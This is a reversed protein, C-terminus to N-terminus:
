IFVIDHVVTAGIQNNLMQIFKSKALALENRLPSSNVQIYLKKDSFYLQTTRNAIAQGVLQEWQAIIYTENYKGRLKYTDIMREIVEGLQSTESKRAQSPKKYKLNSEM